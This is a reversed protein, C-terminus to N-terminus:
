YSNIKLFFCFLCLLLIPLSFYLCESRVYVRVCLIFQWIKKTEKKQTYIKIQFSELFLLRLTNWYAIVLAGILQFSIYHSLCFFYLFFSIFSTNVYLIFQDLPNIKLFHLLILIILVKDKYMLLSESNWWCHRYCLSAIKTVHLKLKRKTYTRENMWKNMPLQYHDLLSHQLGPRCLRNFQQGALGIRHDPEASPCRISVVLSVIIYGPGNQFIAEIMWLPALTPMDFTVWLRAVCLSCSSATFFELIFSTTFCSRKDANIALVKESRFRSFFLPFHFTLFLFSLLRFHLSCTLLSYFLPPSVNESHVASM